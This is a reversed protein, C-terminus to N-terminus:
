RLWQFNRKSYETTNPWGWMNKLMFIHWNVSIMLTKWLPLNQRQQLFDIDSYKQFIQLHCYIRHLGIKKLKELFFEYQKIKECCHSEWEEADAKRKKPLLVEFLTRPSRTTCGYEGYKELNLRWFCHKLNNYM